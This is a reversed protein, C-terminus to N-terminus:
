QYRPRTMQAAILNEEPNPMENRAVEIRRATERLGLRHSELVAYTLLKDLAEVDEDTYSPM